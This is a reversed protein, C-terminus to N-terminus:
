FESYGSKKVSAVRGDEFEVVLYNILGNIRFPAIKFCFEWYNSNMFNQNRLVEESGNFYYSWVNKPNKDKAVIHVKHDFSRSGKEFAIQVVEAKTKGLLEGESIPLKNEIGVFALYCWVGFLILFLGVAIKLIKKKM